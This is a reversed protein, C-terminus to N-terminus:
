EFNEPFDTLDSCQTFVKPYIISEIKALNKEKKIVENLETISMDNSEAIHTLKFDFDQILIKMYNASHRAGTYSIVKTIYDKDLFRRLFFIDMYMIDSNINGYIKQILMILPKEFKDILESETYNYSNYYFNNAIIYNPDKIIHYQSMYEKNLSEFLDHLEQLMVIKKLIKKHETGLYKNLIEKINTHKYKHMMKNLIYKFYTNHIEPSIVTEFIRSKVECKSSTEMCEKIINEFYEWRNKLSLIYQKTRLISFDDIKYINGIIMPQIDSMYMDTGREDRFIKRPDIYHIRLNGILPTKLVKNVESQYNFLKKFMTMVQLLYLKTYQKGRIDNIYIGAFKDKDISEEIREELFVDIMQDSDKLKMFNDMLFTNIHKSHINSCELQGPIEVHFDMFLYIVKKIGNVEGELRAVNVPGSVYKKNPNLIDEKNSM